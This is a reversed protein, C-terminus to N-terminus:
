DYNGSHRNSVFIIENEDIWSPSYNINSDRILIKPKEYDKHYEYITWVNNKRTEYVEKQNTFTQSLRIFSKIDIHKFNGAGLQIEKLTRKEANLFFLKDDETFLLYESKDSNWGLLKQYKKQNDVLKKDKGDIDMIYLQVEKIYSIKKGDLSIRPYLYGGDKTIQKYNKNKIDYIWINLQSIDNIAPEDGKLGSSLSELIQFVEDMAKTALMPFVSVWSTDAQVQKKGDKKSQADVIGTVVGLCGITLLFMSLTIFLKSFRMDNGGTQKNNKYVLRMIDDSKQAFTISKILDNKIMVVRPDKIEETDPKKVYDADFLFVLEKDTKIIPYIKLSEKFDPVSDNSKLRLTAKRYENSSILIGHNIPILSVNTLFIMTFLYINKNSLDNSTWLGILVYLLFISTLIQFQYLLHTFFQRNIILSAFENLQSNKLLLDQNKIPQFFYYLLFLSAIFIIFYWLLMIKKINWSFLKRLLSVILYPIPLILFSSILLGALLRPISVIAENVYMEQSLSIGTWIGLMNLKARLSLFGFFFLIAYIGASSLVVEILLKIIKNNSIDQNM